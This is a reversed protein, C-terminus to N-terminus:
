SKKSFKEKCLYKIGKLLLMGGKGAGVLLLVFLGFMFGVPWAMVLLGYEVSTSEAEHADRSDSYKVYDWIIYLIVSVEGIGWLLYFVENETM